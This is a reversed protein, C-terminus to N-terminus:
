SGGKRSELLEMFWEMQEGPSMASNDLEIADEARTLPSTDRTSDQHDRIMINELVERYSAPLGKELMESYRREARVEADATLFIKIDADPFVVTGIDRGDMVVGGSESIQRQLVVMSRRVEPIASVTSAWESVEVGRIESEINRGNLWTEYGEGTNNNRIEIVISDLQDLLEEKRIRGDKILGNEMCFLAVARYMAGSDVYTLSLQEAIAKAFSSKGGSSPGDIAIVMDTTRKM